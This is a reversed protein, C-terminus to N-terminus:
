HNYENTHPKRVKQSGVGDNKEKGNLHWKDQKYENMAHTARFDFLLYDFLRTNSQREPTTNHYLELLNHSIHLNVKLEWCKLLKEELGEESMAHSCRNSVNSERFALAWSGKHEKM